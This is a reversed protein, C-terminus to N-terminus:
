EEVEIDTGSAASEVIFRKIHKLEEVYAKLAENTKELTVRYKEKNAIVEEVTRMSLTSEGLLRVAVEVNQNISQLHADELPVLAFLQYSSPALGLTRECVSSLSSSGSSLLKTSSAAPLLLSLCLSPPHSVTTSM